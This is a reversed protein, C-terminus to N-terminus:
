LLGSEGLFRKARGAHRDLHKGLHPQSTRATTARSARARGEVSSVLEIMAAWVADGGQRVGTAALPAQITHFLYHTNKSRVAMALGAKRPRFQNAGDGYYPWMSPVDYLPTM